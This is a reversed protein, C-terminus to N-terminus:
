WRWRLQVGPNWTIAPARPLFWFSLAGPLLLAEFRESLSWGMGGDLRILPGNFPLYGLGMRLSLFADNSSSFRLRSELDLCLLLNHARNRRGPLNAYQLTAGLLIAAQAGQSLTRDIRAGTLWLAGGPGEVRLGGAGVLSAGWPHLMRATARRRPFLPAPADPPELRTALPFPRSSAALREAEEARWRELPPLSAAFTHALTPRLTDPPASVEGEEVGSGDLLVLTWRVRYARGIARIRAQVVIQAGLAWGWRWLDAASAPMPLLYRRAARHTHTASPVEYGHDAAAKRLETEVASAVEPPVNAGYAPPAVLLTPWPADAEVRGPAGLSAALWTSALLLLATAERVFAAERM